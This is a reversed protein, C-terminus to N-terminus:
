IGPAATFLDTGAKRVGSVSGPSVCMYISTEKVLDYNDILYCSTKRDSGPPQRPAWTGLVHAQIDAETGKRTM